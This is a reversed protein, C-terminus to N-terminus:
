IGVKDVGTVKISLKKKSSTTSASEESGTFTTGTLELTGILPGDEVGTVEYTIDWTDDDSLAPGSYAMDVKFDINCGASGFCHKSTIKATLKIDSAAPTVSVAPTTATDTQPALHEEVPTQVDAAATATHGSRSAVLIGAAVGGVLLVILAAAILWPTRSKGAPKTPQPPWYPNPTSSTPQDPHSM